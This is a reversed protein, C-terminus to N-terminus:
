NFAECLASKASAAFCAAILEFVLAYAMALSAFRM